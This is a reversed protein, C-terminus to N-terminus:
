KFTYFVGFAANNTLSGNLTFSQFDETKNYNFTARGFGASLLLNETVHYMFNLPAAFVNLNLGSVEGINVGFSGGFSPVLYLKDVL